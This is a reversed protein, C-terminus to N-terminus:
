TQSSSHIFAYVSVPDEFRATTDTTGNGSSAAYPAAEGEGSNEANSDLFQIHPLSSTSGKGRKKSKKLRRTSQPSPSPPLSPALLDRICSIAMIQRQMVQNVVITPLGKPDFHALYTVLTTHSSGDYPELVWGSGSLIQARMLGPIPPYKPLDVSLATMVFKDDVHCAREYYVADREFRIVCKRVRYHMRALFDTSSLEQLVEINVLHKDWQERHSIDAIFLSVEELPLEIVGRGMFVSSQRSVVKESGNRRKERLCVAMLHGGHYRERNQWIELGCVQRPAGTNVPSVFM